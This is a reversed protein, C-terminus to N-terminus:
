TLVCVLIWSYELAAAASVLPRRQPEGATGGEEGGQQGLPHTGSISRARSYELYCVIIFYVLILLLGTALHSRTSGYKIVCMRGEKHPM